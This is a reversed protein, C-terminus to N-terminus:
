ITNELSKLAEQIVDWTYGRARLLGILKKKQTTTDYNKLRTIKKKVIQTAEEIESSGDTLVAEIIEGSIGKQKLEQALLRKGKPKFARRQEIFWKSFANDDLFQKTKLKEIVQEALFEDIKHRWLYDMIEKVSRPRRSILMLSKNVWKSLDSHKKFQFIEEQTVIQNKHLKLNLLTDTDIAFSFENDIFINFRNKDKKQQSIATIVM